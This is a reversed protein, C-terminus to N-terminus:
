QDKEGHTHTHRGWTKEGQLLSSSFDKTLCLLTLGKKEEEKGISMM